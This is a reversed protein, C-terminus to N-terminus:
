QLKNLANKYEQEKENILRTYIQVWEPHPCVFMIEQVSENRPIFRFIADVALAPAIDPPWKYITMGACPFGVTKLHHENAIELATTYCRTYEILKIEDRHESPLTFYRPIASHIVYKCCPLKYARTIISDGGPAFNGKGYISDRIRICEEEMEKGAAKHIRGSLGSGRIFSRHASCMIADANLTLIDGFAAEIVPKM